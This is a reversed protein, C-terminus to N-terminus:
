STRHGLAVRSVHAIYRPDRSTGERPECGTRSVVCNLTVKDTEKIYFVHFHICIKM